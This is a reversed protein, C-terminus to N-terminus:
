FSLRAGFRALRPGLANIPAGFTPSAFSMETVPNANLVNFLDVYLGLQWRFGVSLDKAVRLDLTTVTDTRHDGRPEAFIDVVGQNLPAQLIRPVPTGSQSRLVAGVLFGHPLLWSGHAKFVFPRNWFTTGEANILGNPSDGLATPAGTDVDSGRFKGAPLLASDGSLSLSAALQWRGAFRRRATLELGTYRTDRGPVNGYVVRNDGFGSVQNFVTLQSDDSTGLVNDPGPDTIAVPEFDREFDLGVEVDDWLENERRHVLTAGLSWNRGIQHDIGLTLERTRPSHIDPDLQTVAGGGRSLVDGQEGSQFQGDHNLDNWTVVTVSLGGPSAGVADLLSGVLVHSYESYSAKLATRGSGSLDYVASVRPVLLTWDALPDVGAFSREPAFSGAAITTPELRYRARDLRLGANLTFRNGITWSDQAYLSLFKQDLRQLTPTDFLVALFPDGFLKLLNVDDVATFRTEAPASGYDIGAKLDHSGSSGSTFWNFSAVASYRRDKAQLGIPPAGSTINTSLETESQGTVFDHIGFEAEVDQYSARVDLFGSDGFVRQWQAQYIAFVDQENFTAEPTVFASAGRRPKDYSQRTWLLSFRNDPDAQVTAKLMFVPLITSETDSFGPVRRFVRWDRYSAFFWARRRKIPGGVQVTADTVREVGIAEIGQERLKEDVNDAQTAESAYYGQVFGHLNDGGSRTVMNLLVGPARAEVGHAATSVQVEAFTEYDYYFGATGPFYAADTTAGDLSYSNQSYSTATASFVAQLGAESGGVDQRDTVVGPATHELIAWVDRAIPIQQLVQEGLVAGTGVGKVDVLPSEGTVTVAETIESLELEIDITLTSGVSLQLEERAMPRFDDLAFEARYLGPPLGVFLFRGVRDSHRTQAVILAPGGVTVTVGPLPAGDPGAVKGFIRGTQTQGAVPPALLAAVLAFPILVAPRASVRSCELM